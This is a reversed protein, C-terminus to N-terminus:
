ALVHCFEHETFMVRWKGPQCEWIGANFHGDSSSYLNWARQAPDGALVCEAPPRWEAPAPLPGAFDVTPQFLPMSTSMRALRAAPARRRADGARMWVAPAPRTYAPPM